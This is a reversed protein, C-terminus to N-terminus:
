PFVRVMCRRVDDELVRWREPTAVIRRITGRVEVAFREGLAPLCAQYYRVAEAFEQAADPHFGHNM